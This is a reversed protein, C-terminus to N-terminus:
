RADGMLQKLDSFDRLVGNSALTHVSVTRRSEDQWKIFPTMAQRFALGQFECWTDGTHQREVRVFVMCSPGSSSRKNTNLSPLRYVGSTTATTRLGIREPASEWVVGANGRRLGGQWHRFVKDPEEDLLKAMFFRGSLWILDADSRVRQSSKFRKTQHRAMAPIIASVPIRGSPKGSLSQLEISQMLGPLADAIDDLAEVSQIIPRAPTEAPPQSFIRMQQTKETAM